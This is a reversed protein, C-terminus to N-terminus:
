ITPVPMQCLHVTFANSVCPMLLPLHSATIHRVRLLMRCRDDDALSPVERLMISTSTQEAWRMLM